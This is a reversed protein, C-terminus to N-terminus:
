LQSKGSSDVKEKKGGGGNCSGSSEVKEKGGDSRSKGSSDRYDYKEIYLKNYMKINM